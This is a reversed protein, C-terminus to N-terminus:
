TTGGPAPAPAAEGAVSARSRDGALVGDRPRCRPHPSGCVWRLVAAARQNPSLARLAVVLDVVSEPLEVATPRALGSAGARLRKLDGAAIRFSARWVWAAHDRVHDGRGLAQAFAEAMADSALDPSGTFAVLSRWLRGGQERWVAELETSSRDSTVLADQVV